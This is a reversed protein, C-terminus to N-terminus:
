THTIIVCSPTFHSGYSFQSPGPEMMLIQILRMQFEREEHRIQLEHERQKEERRLRKEEIEIMMQDTKAQMSLLKDVIDDAM